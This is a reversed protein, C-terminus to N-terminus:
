REHRYIKKWQSLNNDEVFQKHLLIEQETIQSKIPTLRQRASYYQKHEIIEESYQLELEKKKNSLLEFVETLIFSDYVASHVDRDTNKVKLRKCLADLNHKKGAFQEKSMQVTDIFRDEPIIDMGCRQLEANIMKRDFDSNHAVILSDGIFDIFDSLYYSIERYNSLFKGTLGTIETIKATITKHPNAYCHFIRGTPKYDITEICGVEIVRDDQFSLGTTETDFIIHRM